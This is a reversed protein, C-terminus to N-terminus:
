VAYLLYAILAAIATNLFNVADNSLLQKRELTAGLYSDALNGATGAVVIWAFNQSWGQGVSYIVAIVVSGLVGFLLGECSVVGDPGPQTRRFNLVDYFRRGYVSGLESSITDATASSFAAAMLLLFLSAHAPFVIAFLGLLGGAGGNALVQGTTRRGKNGQALGLTQKVKKKWSTTLTGIFFFATILALGIWGVGFFICAALVGGTLAAVITLKKALVAGAM